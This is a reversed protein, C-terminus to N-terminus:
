ADGDGTAEPGFRRRRLEDMLALTVTSLGRDHAEREVRARIMRRLFFPLHELRERAEEEWAPSPFAQPELPQIVTGGQPEYACLEDEGFLDGRVAMPRARCGGCLISFECRGCKGALKPKRLAQFMESHEWIEAFSQESLSGVPVEIYPCATVDGTPTIRCYHTGALCGGGEYGQAKTLPSGPDKQFALRKFHPACRARVMMGSYRDQAALLQSLVQEYQQPTIDTMREGRGTCVLFFFNMVLAGQAHAWDMMAEVEGVNGRHVSMHIQFSLGLRRCNEIGVMTHKWAGALGRFGDHFAPTLSDVSIGVGSVGTNLLRRVNSATLLTGNTGVVAMLGLNSAHACLDYIDPRLLPEGGTLVVMCAPNVAAIGDLVGRVAATDLEDPDGSERTGADLYCHACRLNCRRTLNLAVLFPNDHSKLVRGARDTGPKAEPVVAAIM